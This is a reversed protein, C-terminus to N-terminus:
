VYNQLSYIILCNKELRTDSRQLAWVNEEVGQETVDKIPTGEEM